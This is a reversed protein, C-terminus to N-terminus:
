AENEEGEEMKFATSGRLFRQSISIAIEYYATITLAQGIRVRSERKLTEQLRETTWKHRNPDAPWMHSGVAEKEWM